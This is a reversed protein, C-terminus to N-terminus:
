RRRHSFWYGFYYPASAGRVVMCAESRALRAVHQAHHHTAHQM